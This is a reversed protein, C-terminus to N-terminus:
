TVVEVGRVRRELIWISMAIIVGITLLAAWMPVSPTGPSRFIVAAVVDLTDEPSIVAWARSSTIGRLAQYMAATFFILGAYMMAVFRRSKSLSSLALMAFASFLVLIASFLTIAPFLFLNARLFTFNGAFMMQLLLLLMGPLWTVATLFVLLTVLKGAIYEVRTLPKSLYIQLANARRDNAILGSGVYITIFFVFISQQDLFERFTSPTAELFTAQPVNSGLYLMVTRVFFPVSAFLLLGLFKRERLREMIGARAIVWWRGGHPERRGEYRRYGQDHIPL